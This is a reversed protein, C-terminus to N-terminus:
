QEELYAVPVLGIRGQHLVRAWNEDVKEVISVNGDLHVSLEEDTQAEYDYLM